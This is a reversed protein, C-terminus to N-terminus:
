ESKVSEAVPNNQEALAKEVQQKYVNRIHVTIDFAADYASFLPMGVEIYMLIRHNGKYVIFPVYGDKEDKQDIKFNQNEM